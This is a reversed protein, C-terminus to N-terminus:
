GGGSAAIFAEVQRRREESGSPAAPEVVDVSVVDRHDGVGVMDEENV